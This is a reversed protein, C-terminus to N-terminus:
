LFKRIRSVVYDRENPMQTYFNIYPLGSQKAFMRAILYKVNSDHSHGNGLMVVAAPAAGQYLVFTYPKGWEAKYVQRPRTKYLQFENSVFGAIDTVPVNERVIYGPCTAQIIERFYAKWELESREPREESAVAKQPAAQVPRDQQPINTKVTQEINEKLKDIADGAVAKLLNKLFGM